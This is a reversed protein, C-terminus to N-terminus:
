ALRIRAHRTAFYSERGEFGPTGRRGRAWMRRGFDVDDFCLSRKRDLRGMRLFERRQVVMVAAPPPEVDRSHEHDFGRMDRRAGWGSGPPVRGLSTSDLLPHVRRPFRSGAPQVTGDLNLLRPSLAGYAIVFSLDIHPM